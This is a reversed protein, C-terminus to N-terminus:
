DADFYVCLDSVPSIYIQLNHDLTVRIYRSIGKLADLHPERPDHMFLCLQKIAFAIDPHTFTLYQLARVLSHYSSTGPVAPSTADLNHTTEAPTRAPNCQLM